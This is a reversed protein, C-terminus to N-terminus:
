GKAIKIAATRIASLTTRPTIAEPDVVLEILSPGAHDLSRRLAPRFEATEKVREAQCGYAKALAVFDPNVLTTAMVRGPFHREQHMRITGYLGNNCVLVVLKLGYQNATALEQGNMMFCGDGALAVITRQRDAIAAGIAAPLGFGMAGCTPALQTRYSKFEYYRHFFSTYNGAGNTLIADAPLLDNLAKAVQELKLDGPTPEARLSDEYDARAVARWESWRGPKVVLSEFADLFSRSSSNIALTPAHVRGLEDGSPHVHVLKQKPYPVEILTYDSTTMEGLRAGIAIILDASKVRAALKPDLGIGVHGAYNASRNDLYDQYRFAATVPLDLRRATRQLRAACDASWGPGGVIVLPREAANLLDALQAMDGPRPAPEVVVARRGAAVEAVGSLVDEPLGLVVPGPRGSMARHFARSVFEPIRDTSPIIESWKGLSRFVANLDFEQFAERDTVDSGPLGVFLVLPVSDQQAIHIGISGNTAGPGRTVFAVGPRGTMRAHADAMMVAGGEQRCVITEISPKDHLGDLAALYSEGPVCFVASVGQIELEDILIQGGHRM